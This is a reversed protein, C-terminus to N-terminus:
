CTGRWRNRDQALGVGDMGGDWKRFIWRLIIGGDVVSDKLYDRERLNGVLVRCVARREGM